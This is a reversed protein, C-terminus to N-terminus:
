VENERFDRNERLKPIIKQVLRAVKELWSVVKEYDQVIKNEEIHDLHNMFHQFSLRNRYIRPGLTMLKEM